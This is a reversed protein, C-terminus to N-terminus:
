YKQVKQMSDSKLIHVIFEKAKDPTQYQPMSKFLSSLDDLSEMSEKFDCVTLDDLKKLASYELHSPQLRKSYIAYGVRKKCSCNGGALGCYQKLFDSMKKRTRALRQRYAEPTLELIEGASKSDLKFMTGLIFICRSEADLCQLMVNTCSVKLEEALINEDVHGLLEKSNEIFGKEIDEGYYEFSLPRQAFMSKKYNLLYNVAIRYVWTSFASEKRFGALHTIVRIMIEQAADEADNVTGLMRLSLNYVRDQVSNILTELAEQNGELALSILQHEHQNQQM